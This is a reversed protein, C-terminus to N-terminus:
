PWIVNDLGNGLPTQSKRDLVGLRKIGETNGEANGEDRGGGIQVEKSWGIWNVRSINPFFMIVWGEHLPKYGGSKTIKKLAIINVPFNYKGWGITHM